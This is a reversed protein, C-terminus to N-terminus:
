EAVSVWDKGDSAAEEELAPTGLGHHGACYM